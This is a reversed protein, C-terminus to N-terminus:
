KNKEYIKYVELVEPISSTSGVYRVSLGAAITAIKLCKEIDLKKSLGYAFAGNFIDKTSTTDKEKVSIAGMIKTKDENKYLCGKDGLTIIVNNKYLDSMYNIAEKLTDPKNYDIRVKSILEAFEKSSIIYDCLSCLKITNDNYINANLLKISNPYRNIIENALSYNSADILLIDIEDRFEIKNSIEIHDISNITTSSANYRNILIYKKLTELGNPIVYDTNLNHMNAYKILEKGEIDEGIIGTFCTDVGWKSLLVASTFANGGPCEIKEKLSFNSGEKPFGDVYLYTDISAEGVVLVRM